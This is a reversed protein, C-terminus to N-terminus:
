TLDNRRLFLVLSANEQEKKYTIGKDPLQLMTRNKNM